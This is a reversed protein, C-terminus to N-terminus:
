WKGVVTRTQNNVSWNGPYGRGQVSMEEGCTPCDTFGKQEVNPTKIAQVEYVTKCDLDACKIRLTEHNSM